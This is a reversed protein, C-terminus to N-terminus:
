PKTTHSDTRSSYKGIDRQVVHRRFLKMHDILVTVTPM